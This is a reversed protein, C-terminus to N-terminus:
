ENYKLINWSKSLEIYQSTSLFYHYYLFFCVFMQEKNCNTWFDLLLTAKYCKIEIMFNLTMSVVCLCKFLKRDLDIVAAGSPFFLAMIFADWVPINKIQLGKYILTSIFVFFDKIKRTQTPFINLILLQDAFCNTGQSEKQSKFDWRSLPSLPFSEPAM